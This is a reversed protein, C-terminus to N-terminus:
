DQESPSTGGAAGPLRFERVSDLPFEREGACLVPGEATYRLHDVEVTFEAGDQDVATVEMGVMSAATAAEQYTILEKQAAVMSKLTEVQTFQATQQLMAAGDTPQMPNQYRMQAVLLKLFAEGGLDGLKQMPSAATAASTDGVGGIPM